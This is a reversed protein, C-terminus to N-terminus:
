VPQVLGDRLVAFLMCDHPHGQVNLRERLTGEYVGGAKIAVRQSALNEVATLIEIRRLSKDKFAWECLQRTAETAVGHGTASARVWYGLEGVQHLLDIRHIGCCGLLRENEDVILFDWEENNEWATPRGEVRARVDDRSYGEHCWAMWRSLEARSEQVAEWIADVDSPQYRRLGIKNGITPKM